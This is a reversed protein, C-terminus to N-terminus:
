CDWISNKNKSTKHGLEHTLLSSGVVRIDIKKNKYPSYPLHTKFPQFLFWFFIKMRPFSIFNINWQGYLKIPVYGHDIAAKKGCSRLQTTAVSLKFYTSYVSFYYMVGTRHATGEKEKGKSLVQMFVAKVSSCFGGTQNRLFSLKRRSKLKIM